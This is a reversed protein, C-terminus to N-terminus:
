NPATSRQILWQLDQSGPSAPVNDGPPVEPNVDHIMNNDTWGHTESHGDAFSLVSSNGHLVAPSNYWLNPQTPDVAFYGDDIGPPSEEIFVWTTSPGPRSISSLKTYIKYGTVTKWLEYPGMWCNMSYTRIAPKGFSKQYPVVNHDAPCKYVKVNQIYPYLLGAYIWNTYYPGASMQPSQMNGPCWQCISGGPMLSSDNLPNEAFSAPQKGLDGNPVLKDSNDNAYMIWALSLQKQNALCSIALAKQKAKALAPLLMAALISIIAIVVLLEILTFGARANKRRRMADCHIQMDDHFVFKAKLQNINM